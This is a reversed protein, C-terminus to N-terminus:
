EDDPSPRDQDIMPQSSVPRQSRKASRRPRPVLDAISSLSGAVKNLRNVADQLTDTTPALVELVPTLRSLVDAVEALQDLPGNKTTMRDVLGDEALMREAVGDEALMREVVGDEALLRGVLGGPALARELGTGEASLRDLLGGEATLLEIAGDPRTLRDLSSGPALMHWLPADDALLSAVRNLREITDDIGPVPIRSTPLTPAGTEGLTRRALGLANSTAALGADGAALGVRMPATVIMM